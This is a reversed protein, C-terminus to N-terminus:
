PLVDLNDLGVRTVGHGLWLAYINGLGRLHRMGADSMPTDDIRLWLAKTIGRFRRLDDDAVSQCGSLDIQWMNGSAAASSWDPLVDLDSPATLEGSIGTNLQLSQRGGVEKVWNFLAVNPDTEPASPTTNPTTSTAPAGRPTAAVSQRRLADPVLAVRFGGTAGREAPAYFTRASSRSWGPTSYWDGGRQVRKRGEPSPGTPDVAVKEAFQAFYGPDWADEAWERANGHMDFLGFANARLEGVAHTRGGSNAGFWAAGALTQESDGSWFRTTTGARCAFEWEAETPLRYGTGKLPTVTEGARFYFPKLNEKRSLMACFEAADNWSVYEIPHDDTCFNGSVWFIAQFQPNPRGAKAFRRDSCTNERPLD